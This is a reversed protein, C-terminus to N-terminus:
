WVYMGIGDMTEGPALRCSKGPVPSGGGRLQCRSHQCMKLGIGACNQFSGEGWVNMQEM